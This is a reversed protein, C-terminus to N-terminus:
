AALKKSIKTNDNVGRINTQKGIIEILADIAKDILAAGYKKASTPTYGAKFGIDEATASTIAADLIGAHAGLKGRLNDLYDVREIERETVPARHAPASTAGGGTGKIAPVGGIWQPGYITYDECPEAPPLNARQRAEAFPISGDVGLSQLLAKGKEVGPRPMYRVDIAAAGSFPRQYLPNPEGVCGPMELYADVSARSRVGAPTGKPEGHRETPELKRGKHDAGWQIMEGRRFKLGGFAIQHKEVEPEVEGASSYINVRERTHHWRERGIVTWGIAGLLEGETPHIQQNFEGSTFEGTSVTEGDVPSLGETQNLDRWTRLAVVRGVDRLHAMRELTPWALVKTRRKNDNAATYFRQNM